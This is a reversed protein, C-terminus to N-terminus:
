ETQGQQGRCTAGAFMERVLVSLEDSSSDDDGGRFISKLRTRLCSGSEVLVFDEPHGTCAGNGTSEWDMETNVPPQTDWEPIEDSMSALSEATACDHARRVSLWREIRSLDPLAAFALFSSEALNEWREHLRAFQSDVDFNVEAELSWLVIRLRILAVIATLSAYYWSVPITTSSSTVYHFARLIGEATQLLCHSVVLQSSYLPQEDVGELSMLKAMVQEHLTL